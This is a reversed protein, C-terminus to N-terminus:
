EDVPAFESKLAFCQPCEFDDPIDCFETGPELDCDYDGETEDYGWGCVKCVYKMFHSAEKPRENVTFFQDMRNMNFAFHLGLKL